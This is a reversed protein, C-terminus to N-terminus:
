ANDRKVEEQELRWLEAKYEAKDELLEKIYAKLTAIEVQAEIHEANLQGCAKTMQHLEYCTPEVGPHQTWLIDCIRCRDTM